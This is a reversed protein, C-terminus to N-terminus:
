YKIIWSPYFVRLETLCPCPEVSPFTENWVVRIQIYLYCGKPFLSNEVELCDLVMVALYVQM